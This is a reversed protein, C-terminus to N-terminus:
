GGRVEQGSAPWGVPWRWGFLFGGRNPPPDELSRSAAIM